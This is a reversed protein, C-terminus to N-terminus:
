AKPWAPLSNSSVLSGKSQALRLVLSAQTKIAEFVPQTEATESCRRGHIEVQGNKGLRLVPRLSDMFVKFLCDHRSYLQACVIM